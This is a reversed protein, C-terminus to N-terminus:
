FKRFENVFRANMVIPQDPELLTYRTEQQSYQDQNMNGFISIFTASVKEKNQNLCLLFISFMTLCISTFLVSFVVILTVRDYSLVPISSASDDCDLNEDDGLPCQPYNDCLFKNDICHSTNSGCRFFRDTDSCLM